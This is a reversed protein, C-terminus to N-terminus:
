ACTTEKPFIPSAGRNRGHGSGESDSVQTDLSIPSRGGNEPALPLRITFTTGVGCETELSLTGGHKDVIVSRAIALGQGTGKGVDKTTFFPDYVKDRIEDPIGGGTDQVSIEVEAKPQGRRRTGITITGKETAGDGVVDGIAHAANIILNLIVQNLEGPLCLVPPLSADFDTVMEAVYKWENRCITVTSEIAKNIDVATKEDVGPHSFERMARVIKTVRAVGQLSQSIARPIEQCLYAVDAEDVLTGVAAVTEPDILGNRAQQHLRGYQKLLTILETFADDLFRTNDGLYQMPTNIEHAIGAALQGIGELKQAQTLQSELVKRETVDRGLILVGRSQPNRSFPPADGIKGAIMPNATIAVFGDTGDPRKFRVDDLRVPRGTEACQALTADIEDFPWAITTQCLDLGLVDSAKVGFTDEATANWETIRRKEDLCILISSISSVLLEAHAHARRLAEEARLRDAIDRIVHMSGNVQGSRDALPASTIEFHSGRQIRSFPPADGIKRQSVLPCDETSHDDGCLTGDCDAKPQDGKKWGLQEAAARNLRLIRGDADLVVIMDPAADFTAEWQQALGAMERAHRVIQLHKMARDIIRGIIEASGPKEIFDFAGHRTAEVAESIQGHGSLIIPVVDLGRDEIEKLLGLGDMRPMRLDSLVVDFDGDSLEVLGELGDCATKCSYGLATLDRALVRRVIKDDDVILINGQRNM